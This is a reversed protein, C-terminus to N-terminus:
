SLSMLFYNICFALGDSDSPLDRSFHRRQRPIPRADNVLELAERGKEALKRQGSSLLGKLDLQELKMFQAEIFGAVKDCNKGKYGLAERTFSSFDRENEECFALHLSIWLRSTSKYTLSFWTLFSRVPLLEVESEEQSWPQSSRSVGAKRKRLLCSWRQSVTAEFRFYLAEHRRSM